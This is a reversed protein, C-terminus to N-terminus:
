FWQAVIGNQLNSNRFLVQLNKRGLSYFDYRRDQFISYCSDGLGLVRIAQKFDIISVSCFLTFYSTRRTGKNNVRFM